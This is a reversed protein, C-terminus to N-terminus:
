HLFYQHMAFAIVLIPAFPMYTLNQNLMVSHRLRQGYDYLAISASFVTARHDSKLILTHQQLRNLLWYMPGIVVVSIGVFYIYDILGNAGALLGLVVMLKVDGAAVVRLIYLLLGAILTLIFGFAHNVLSLSQADTSALTLCQFVSVGFLALVMINPIRHERADSVGILFLISWVSLSVIEM